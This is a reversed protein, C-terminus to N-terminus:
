EKLRKKAKEIYPVYKECEFEIKRLETGVRKIRQLGDEFVALNGPWTIHWDHQETKQSGSYFGSCITIIGYRIDTIHKPTIILHQKPIIEYDEETLDRHRKQKSEKKLVKETEELKAELVERSVRFRLLHEVETRVKHRADQIVRKYEQEIMEPSVRLTSKSFRVYKGYMVEKTPSKQPQKKKGLIWEFM